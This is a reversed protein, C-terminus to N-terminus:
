NVLLHYHDDLLVWAYLNVNFRNLCNNLVEIFIEKIKINNFYPKQNVTGGTIFYISNFYIHPPRHINRTNPYQM